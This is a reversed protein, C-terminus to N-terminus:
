PEPKLGAGGRRGLGVCQAVMASANVAGLATVSDEWWKRLEELRRFHRNLREQRDLRNARQPAAPLTLVDLLRAGVHSSARGIEAAFDVIYAATTARRELRAGVPTKRRAQDNYLRQAIVLLPESVDEYACDESDVDVSGLLPPFVDLQQCTGIMSNRVSETMILRYSRELEEMLAVDQARLREAFEHVAPAARLKAESGTRAECSNGDSQFSDIRFRFGSRESYAQSARLFPAFNRFSEEDLPRAAAEPAAASPSMM